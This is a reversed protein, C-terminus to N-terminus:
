LNTQKFKREQEELLWAIIVEKNSFVNKLLGTKRWKDLVAPTEREREAMRKTNLFEWM